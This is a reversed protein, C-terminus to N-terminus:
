VALNDVIALDGPEWKVELMLNKNELLGVIRKRIANSEKM